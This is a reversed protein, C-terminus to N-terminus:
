SGFFMLSHRWRLPTAYSGSHAKVFAFGIDTMYQYNLQRDWGSPTGWNCGALLRDEGTLKTGSDEYGMYFRAPFSEQTV